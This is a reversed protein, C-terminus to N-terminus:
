LAFRRIIIRSNGSDAIALQGDVAFIGYPWCLTDDDVKTWRNDGSLQFDFQGYLETAAVNDALHQSHWGLLRSNATDAVILRDGHSSIGYPMSLTSATAAMGGQNLMTATENKQGLIWHAASHSTPLASNYVMIRNNGADAICLREQWLCMSHPWRMSSRNADGGGNEDRCHFDQQGLVRDAPTGSNIPKNDWILVRRNGTDAIYLTDGDIMVGSPWHLSSASAQAEGQNALNSTFDTQGLVIDAPQGQYPLEHWILIRHNWSDAVAIGKGYPSIGSPVNFSCDSAEGGANRAEGDGQGLSLCADGTYQNQQPWAMIRHHGTDCVWLSNDLPHLCVARPAFLSRQDCRVAAPLGQENLEGGLITPKTHACLLPAATVTSQLATNM